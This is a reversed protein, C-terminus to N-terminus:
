RRSPRRMLSCPLVNISFSLFAKLSHDGHWPAALVKLQPPWLARGYGLPSVESAMIVGHSRNGAAAGPVKAFPGFADLQKLVAEITPLSRPLYEVRGGVTAMAVVVRAPPPHIWTRMPLPHTFQVIVLDADEPLMYYIGGAIFSLMLAWILASLVTFRCLFSHKKSNGEDNDMAAPKLRETKQPGEARERNWVEVGSYSSTCRESLQLGRM